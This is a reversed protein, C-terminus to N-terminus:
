RPSIQVPQPLVCALVRRTVRAEGNGMGGTTCCRPRAAAGGNLYSACFLAGAVKALAAPWRPRCFGPPVRLDHCSRVFAALAGSGLQDATINSYQYLLAPRFSPPPLCARTPSPPAAGAETPAQRSNVFSIRFSNCYHLAGWPGGMRNTFGIAQSPIPGRKDLQLRM